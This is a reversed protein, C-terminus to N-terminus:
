NSSSCSSVLSLGLLVRLRYLQTPTGAAATHSSVLAVAEPTMSDPNLAPREEKPKTKKM